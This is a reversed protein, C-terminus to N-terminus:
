SAISMVSRDRGARKASYLAADANRLTVKARTGAHHVAAGASITALPSRSRWGAVIREVAPGPDVPGRLVMLFEEGGMRALSDRDRVAVRLYNGLEQLLRDGLAHGFRDNVSKFHDLDLMVVADGEALSDLLREAHRRNGLGTLEDTLAAQTLTDHAKRTVGASHGLAAGIAVATPVVLAVSAIADRGPSRGLAYPLLYAVSAPLAMTFCWRPGHWYGVWGLILVLYIGLAVTPTAGSAADAVYIALALFAMVLSARKPWRGWELAMAVAGIVVTAGDLAVWLPHGRTTAGSIFDNTVGLLGVVLFLAGAQRGAMSHSDNVLGSLVPVLRRDGVSWTKANRRPVDVGMSYVDTGETGVKFAVVTNFAMFRRDRGAARQYAELGQAVLGGAGPVQVELGALM